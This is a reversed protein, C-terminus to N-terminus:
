SANKEASAPGVVAQQVATSILQMDRLRLARASTAGTLEIVGAEIFQDLVQRLHRLKGSEQAIELDELAGITLEQAKDANVKVTIEAM